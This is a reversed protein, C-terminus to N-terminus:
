VAAKKDRTIGRQAEKVRGQALRPETFVAILTTIPVALVLGLSGVLMRVIEDAVIEYNLVEAFPRVDDVFLLLLPLAAGTYVLILTNVMSSIHDRGISMARWYLERRRMSPNADKLQFVVASQSVTIDDLVGLVGIIIGALLLGKMNLAGQRAVQLMGAEEAAFGTLNASEVFYGALIGTIILSIITGGIAVTTKRNFGHSLYFTIPIIMIAGIVAVLLPNTGTLLRPMIFLFIVLFSLAMGALSALGRWRAVLVTAAVFLAFLLYLSGRRVYDNIYFVDKGEMDKSYAVVLRDGVAYQRDNSTLLAANNVFITQGTLSGRLVKIELAQYTENGAALEGSPVSSTNEINVVLGELLESDRAEENAFAFSSIGLLFLVAVVTKLIFVKRVTSVNLM